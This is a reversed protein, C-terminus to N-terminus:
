IQGLRSLEAEIRRIEEEEHEIQNILSLPEEGAAYVSRKAQLRNLNKRHQERQQQLSVTDGAAPGLHGPTVHFEARADDGVTVGQSGTVTTAYKPKAEARLKVITVIFNGAIVLFAVIAIVIALFRLNDPGLGIAAVALGILLAITAIAFLFPEGKIKAVAQAVTGEYATGSRQPKSGRSKAARNTTAM